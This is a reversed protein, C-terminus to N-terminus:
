SLAPCRIGPRQTMSSSVSCALDEATLSFMDSKGLNLTALRRQPLKTLREQGAFGRYHKLVIEETDGMAEAVQTSTAGM